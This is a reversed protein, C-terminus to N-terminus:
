SEPVRISEGNHEPGLGLLFPAAVDVWTDTGWHEAAGTGFATTLMDTHIIGPALPIAALGDPLEQALSGTLGEIAFKSACYPGVGPASFQGWGSSFNCIVGRGAEIMSPVFHRVVNVVGKVNIDIVRAFDDASITWLPARENIVGANNLLLDPVGVQDVVHAAWHAVSADDVVDVAQLDHNQGHATALSARLAALQEEDRGCGVITHGEAAYREALARGLGRTVGTILILRQALRRPDNAAASPPFSVTM